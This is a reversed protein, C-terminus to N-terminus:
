KRLLSEAVVEMRHLKNESLTNTIAEGIQSPNYGQKIMENSAYLDCASENNYYRHGREHEIIFVIYPLPMERLSNDLYIRREKWAVTATNPNDTFIWEFNEPKVFYDRERPPLQALPFEVPRPLRRFEGQVIQYEGAPLNFEWVRKALVSTDYFMKGREDIIIVPNGTVNRFGTKSEVSLPRFKRGTNGHKSFM